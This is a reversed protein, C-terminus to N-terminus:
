FSHLVKAGLSGCPFTKSEKHFPQLFHNWLVAYEDQPTPSILFGILRKFCFLLVLVAKRFKTEVSLTVQLKVKDMLPPITLLRGVANKDLTDTTEWAGCLLCNGLWLVNLILVQRNIDSGIQLSNFLYFLIFLITNIYFYHKYFAILLTAKCPHVVFIRGPISFLYQVM